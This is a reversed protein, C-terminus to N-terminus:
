VTMLYKFCSYYSVEDNGSDTNHIPFITNDDCYSVVVTKMVIGLLRCYLTTIIIPLYISVKAKECSKFSSAVTVDLLKWESHIKNERIPKTFIFIIPCAIM